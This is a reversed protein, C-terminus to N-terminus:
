KSAHYKESIRFKNKQYWAKSYDRIQERHTQRYEKNVLRKNIKEEETKM